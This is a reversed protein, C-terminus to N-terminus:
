KNKWHQLRRMESKLKRNVNLSSFQGYSIKDRLGLVTEMTLIYSTGDPYYFDRGSFKQRFQKLNKRATTRDGGKIHNQISVAYAKMREEVGISPHDPGIESECRELVRASTLYAGRSQAQQDLTFGEDRCSRFQRMASIEKYREARFGIGPSPNNQDLACAGPAFLCAALLTARCANAPGNIKKRIVNM